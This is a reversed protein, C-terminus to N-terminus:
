LEEDKGGKGIFIEAKIPETSIKIGRSELKRSIELMLSNRQLLSKQESAKDQLKKIESITRTKERITMEIQYRISIYFIFIIAFVVVIPMNRQFGKSTLFTGDFIDRTKIKIKAM